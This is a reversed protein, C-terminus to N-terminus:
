KFFLLIEFCVNLLEQYAVVAVASTPQWYWTVWSYDVFAKTLKMWLKLSRGEAQYEYVRLFLKINRFDTPNFISKIFYLKSTNLIKFSIFTKIKFLINTAKSVSFFYSRKDNFFPYKIICSEGIWKFHNVVDLICNWKVLFLRLSILNIIHLALIRVDGGHFGEFYYGKWYSSFPPFSIVLSSLTYLADSIYFLPLRTLIVITYELLVLYTHTNCLHYVNFFVM